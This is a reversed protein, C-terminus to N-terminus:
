SDKLKKQTILNEKRKGEFDIFAALEEDTLFVTMCHEHSLTSLVLREGVFIELDEYLLEIISNFYVHGWDHTWDQEFTQSEKLSSNLFANKIEKTLAFDCEEHLSNSYGFTIRPSLSEHFALVNKNTYAFDVFIQYSKSLTRMIDREQNILAKMYKEFQAKTPTSGFSDIYEQSLQLEGKNYLEIKKSYEAIKRSHNDKMESLAATLYKQKFPRMLARTSCKARTGISLCYRILANREASTINAKYGEDLRYEKLM